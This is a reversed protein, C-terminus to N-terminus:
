PGSSCAVFVLSLFVSLGLLTRRHVGCKYVPSGLARMEIGGSSCIGLATRKIERASVEGAAVSLGGAALLMRSRSTGARLLGRGADGSALAPVRGERDSSHGRPRVYQGMPRHLRATARPDNGFDCEGARPRGM